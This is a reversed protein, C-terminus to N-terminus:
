KLRLQTNKSHLYKEHSFFRINFNFNFCFCTEKNFLRTKLKQDVVKASLKDVDHFSPVSKGRAGRLVPLQGFSVSVEIM